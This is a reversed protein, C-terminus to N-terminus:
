AVVGCAGDGEEVAHGWGAGPLHSGMHGGVADEDAATAM